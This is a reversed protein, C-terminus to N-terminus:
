APRYGTMLIFNGNRVCLPVWRKAGNVAMRWAAEVDRDDTGLRLASVPITVPGEGPVQVVIRKVAM